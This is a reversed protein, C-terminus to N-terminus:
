PPPTTKHALYGEVAHVKNASCIWDVQSFDKLKLNFRSLDTLKLKRFFPVIEKIGMGTLHKCLLGLERLRRRVTM